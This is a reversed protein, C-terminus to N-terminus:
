VATLLDDLAHWDVSQHRPVSMVDGLLSEQKPQHGGSSNGGSSQSFQQQMSGGTFGGTMNERSRQSSSSANSEGVFQSSALGLRAATDAEVAGIGRRRDMGDVSRSRDLMAPPLTEALRALLAQSLVPGRGSNGDVGVHAHPTQPPQIPLPNIGQPLATLSPSAGVSPAAPEETVSETNQLAAAFSLPKAVSPTQPTMATPLTNTLAAGLSPSNTSTGGVPPAVPASPNSGIGTVAGYFSANLGSQGSTGLVQAPDVNLTNASPVTQLPSITQPSSTDLAGQLVNNTTNATNLAGLLTGPTTSSPSQQPTNLTALSGTANFVGTAANTNLNGAYSFNNASNLQLVNGTPNSGIVPALGSTLAQNGATPSPQGTTPVVSPPTVSGAQQATPNTIQPSVGGAQLLESSPSQLGNANLASAFPSTAQNVPPTPVIPTVNVNDM